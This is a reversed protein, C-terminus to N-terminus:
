LREPVENPDKDEPRKQYNKRMLDKPTIVGSSVVLRLGEDLTMDTFIVEEKPVIALLGSQPTPTTPVLINCFFKGEGDTVEGTYFGVTYTDKSPWPIVVVRHPAQGATSLSDIIQKTPNYISKILPVRLIVTEIVQIFPKGYASRIVLGVIYVGVITIAGGVGFIERDFIREVLPQVLGDVFNFFLRLIVFTVVLPILAITGAILHTRLHRILWHIYLRERVRMSITGRHHPAKRKAEM